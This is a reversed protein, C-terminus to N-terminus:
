DLLYGLKKKGKKTGGAKKKVYVGSGHVKEVLGLGYLHDIAKRASGLSISFQVSLDRISPIKAGGFYQGTSIKEELYDVLEKKTGLVILGSKKLNELM